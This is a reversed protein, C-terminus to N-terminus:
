VGCGADPMLDVQVNVQQYQLQQSHQENNCQNSHNSNEEKSRRRMERKMMLSKRWRGFPVEGSLRAKPVVKSELM